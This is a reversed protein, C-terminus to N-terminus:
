KTGKRAAVVEIVSSAHKGDDAASTCGRQWAVRRTPARATLGSGQVCEHVIYMRQTFVCSSVKTLEKLPQLVTSKSSQPKGQAFVSGPPAFTHKVQGWCVRRGQREVGTQSPTQSWKRAQFHMPACPQTKNASPRAWLAGCDAGLRALTDM